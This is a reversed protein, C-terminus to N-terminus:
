LIISFKLALKCKQAAQTKQKTLSDLVSSFHVLVLLARSKVLVTSGYVLRQLIKASHTDNRKVHGTVLPSSSIGLEGGKETLLTDTHIYVAHLRKVVQTVRYRDDSFCLLEGGICKTRCVSKQHDAARCARHLAHHQGSALTTVLNYQWSINVATHKICENQATCNGNIYIRLNIVSESNAESHLTLLNSLRNRLVGIGNGHKDVVRSVVSNATIKTRYHTHSMIRSHKTKGVFGVSSMEIKAASKGNGSHRRSRIHCRNGHVLAASAKRLRAKQERAGINM